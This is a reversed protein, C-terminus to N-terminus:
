FFEEGLNLSLFSLFLCFGASSLIDIKKLALTSKKECKYSFMNQRLPSHGNGVSVSKMWELRPNGDSGSAIVIRSLGLANVVTKNVLVKKRILNLRTM